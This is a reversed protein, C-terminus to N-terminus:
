NLTASRPLHAIFAEIDDYTNTVHTSIRVRGDGAWALIKNGALQRGVEESNEMAVAVNGSRQELSSGHNLLRFGEETLRDQAYNSLANVREFLTEKGIRLLRDIGMGLASINALAPAGVGFRQAGKFFRINEFRDDEFISEVSRWGIVGPTLDPLLEENWYFMGIGYPGLSWKYSASVAVSCYTLDIEQAGLSHSIDVLFPIGRDHLQKGLSNLDQKLGNIYSVHSIVFATTREDCLALLDEETIMGDANPKAFRLELGQQALRLWAAYSSYHELENIILNDGPKWKWGNAISNWVTSADGAFAIRDASCGLLNALSQKTEDERNFLYDRGAEGQSKVRYAKLLEDAVAISAPSHAGTYLYHTNELDYFESKDILPLM